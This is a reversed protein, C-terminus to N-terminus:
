NSHTLSFLGHFDFLNWYKKKTKIETEEQMTVYKQLIFFLELYSDLICANIPEIRFNTHILNSSKKKKKKFSSTQSTNVHSGIVKAMLLVIPNYVLM